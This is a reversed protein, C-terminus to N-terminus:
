KARSDTIVKPQFGCESLAADANKAQVSRVREFGRERLRNRRWANGQMGVVLCVVFSISWLAPVFLAVVVMVVLVITGGLWMRCILMWIWTFFFGPWSFGHKVAQLGLAPHSYVDFQKM